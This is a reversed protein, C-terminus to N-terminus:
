TVGFISDAIGDLALCGNGLWDPIMEMPRRTISSLEENMRIPM